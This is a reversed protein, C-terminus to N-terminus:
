MVKMGRLTESLEDGLQVDVLGEPVRHKGLKQGALGTKLKEQLANKRQQLIEEQAPGREVRRLKRANLESLFSLQRRKAAREALLRREARVKLAKRREAKTKRQPIKKPPLAAEEANEDEEVNESPNDIAMGEAGLSPEGPVADKIAQGAEKWRVDERLRSEEEKHARLLLETHAQVPPNYSTGAHPLPVAPLSILTRPNTSIETTASPPHSPPLNAIALPIPESTAPPSSAWPDYHGSM